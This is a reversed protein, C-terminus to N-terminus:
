AAPMFDYGSQPVGLYPFTDLYQVRQSAATLGDTVALAAADPEFDPDILPYTAGALARLEITVVDDFVRRGNPFGALDGGIIGLPSPENTTPPIAVNLRELDAQVPGTFNQFNPVVGSPLGTLLIALLDARPKGSENLAKLNPFAEPYLVPLLAALEPKAVFKAFESDKSPPSANWRDKLAMPILLENFLPNALRSVQMFSGTNRSLAGLVQNRAGGPLLDLAGDILGGLLFRARQRSASGYVGIVSDRSNRDSPRNRRRTLQNPIQIAITQVSVDKTSNVGAEAASPILHLDQFPRLAGLDFISGLDVYFGEQRQGAFVKGGGPLDHVAAEALDSYDPTSRFGINCPPTSLGSALVM